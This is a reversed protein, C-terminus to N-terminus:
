ILRNSVVEGGSKTGSQNNTVANDCENAFSRLTAIAVKLFRPANIRGALSPCGASLFGRQHNTGPQRRDAKRVYV